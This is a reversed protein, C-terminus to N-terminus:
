NNKHYDDNQQIFNERNTMCKQAMSTLVYKGKKNSKNIAKPDAKKVDKLKEQVYLRWVSQNFTNTQKFFTLLDMRIFLYFNIYLNFFIYITSIKM